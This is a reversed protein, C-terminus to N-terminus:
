AKHTQIQNWPDLDLSLQVLAVLGGCGSGCLQVLVVRGTCVPRPLRVLWSYLQGKEPSELESLM